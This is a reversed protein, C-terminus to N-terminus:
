SETIPHTWAPSDTATAHARVRMLVLYAVFSLGFTVFWAYTYLKDFFDPNAV